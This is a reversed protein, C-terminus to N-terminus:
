LTKYNEQLIQFVTYNFELFTPSKVMNSSTFITEDYFGESLSLIIVKEQM